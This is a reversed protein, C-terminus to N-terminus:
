PRAGQHHATLKLRPPEDPEVLLECTLGSVPRSNVAVPLPEAIRRDLVVVNGPQLSALDAATLRASGVITQVAVTRDSLTAVVDVLGPKGALVDTLSPEIGALRWAALRERSLRLHVLGGHGSVSTLNWSLAADVLDRSTPGPGAVTSLEGEPFGPLEESLFAPLARFCDAAMAQVLQRDAGNLRSAVLSRGFVSGALAIVSAADLHLEIARDADVIALPAFAAHETDDQWPSAPVTWTAALRAPDPFWAAAWRSAAAEIRRLLSQDSLATEPVYRTATM